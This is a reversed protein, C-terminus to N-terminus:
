QINRTRSTNQLHVGLATYHIREYENRRRRLAAARRQAEIREARAARIHRCLGRLTVFAVAAYHDLAELARSLMAPM